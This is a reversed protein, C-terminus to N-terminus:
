IPASGSSSGNSLNGSLSPKKFVSLSGSSFASYNDGLLQAIRGCDV